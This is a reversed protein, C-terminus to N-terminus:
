NTEIMKSLNETSIEWSAKMLMRPTWERDVSTVGSMFYVPHQLADPLQCTVVSLLPWM